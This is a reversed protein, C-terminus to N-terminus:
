VCQLNFYLLLLHDCRVKVEGRSMEAEEGVCPAHRLHAVVGTARYSADCDVLVPDDSASEIRMASMGKLLLVVLVPLKSVVSPICECFDMCFNRYDRLDLM